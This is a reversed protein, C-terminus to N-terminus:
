DLVGWGPQHAALWARESKEVKDKWRRRWSRGSPSERGQCGVRGLIHESFAPESSELFRVLAGLFVVM